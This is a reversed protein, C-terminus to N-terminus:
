LTGKTAIKKKKRHLSSYIFKNKIRVRESDITQNNLSLNWVLYFGSSKDINRQTHATSLFICNEHKVKLIWHFPLVHDIQTRM